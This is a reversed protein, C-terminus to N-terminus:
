NFEGEGFILFPTSLVIRIAIKMFPSDSSRESDAPIWESAYLLRLPSTSNVFIGVRRM